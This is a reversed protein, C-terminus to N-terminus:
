HWGTRRAAAELGDGLHEVIRDRNREVARTIPEYRRFVIPVGRPQITGGYEVVGAYPLPSRVGAANGRTFARYSGALAGTRRPATAAAEARVIDAAGKLTKQVEKLTERDQQRLDRRLEKLGEVKVDFDKAM